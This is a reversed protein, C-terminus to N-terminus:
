AEEDGLKQGAMVGQITELLKDRAVPKRLAAYVNDQETILQGVKEKSYGSLLIFPLDPFEVGAHQVLELGTMHPMNYDTIVLDFVDPNERLIALAELGNEAGEAEIGIRDLLKVVMERVEEQDEVVLVSLDEIRVKDSSVLPKEDEAEISQAPFYLDFCTGRELTSDVIMCGRHETIAAHVMSLGLGTGKDVPKTTFFPEFIREMIVKSMGCGNDAISLCHYEHNRSVTGLVLITREASVEKFSIPATDGKPLLDERIFNPMPFEAFNAQALRILLQGKDDAMADSANVCLNMLVQTMQSVNGRIYAEETEIENRVEITKPLSAQLMSMTEKISDKLNILDQSSEKRRSFALMQDVLGRARQGAQLINSAFGELPEQGELDEVLFEAYGNIAALINNFDHAIGGALRGIAEMKQSQYFQDQLEIKESQMQKEQTMDHVTCIHGGDNLATASMYLAREQGARTLIDFEGSWNKNDKLAKLIDAQGYDDIMGEFLTKWDQYLYRETDEENLGLTRLLAANIFTVQKNSDVIAIGDLSAELAAVLRELFALHEAREEDHATTKKFFYAMFIFMVFSTVSMMLISFYLSEKEHHFPASLTEWEQLPVGSGYISHLVEISNYHYEVFDQAIHLTFLGFILIFLGPVYFLLSKLVPAKLIQFM